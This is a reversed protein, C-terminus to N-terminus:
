YFAQKIDLWLSGGEAEAAHVNLSVTGSYNGSERAIMEFPINKSGNFRHVEDYELYETINGEVSALVITDRGTEISIERTVNMEESILRGFELQATDASAGISTSNNAVVQASTNFTTDQKELLVADLAYPAVFIGVSLIAAIGILIVQPEVPLRNSIQEPM